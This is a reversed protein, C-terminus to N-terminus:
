RSAANERLRESAALTAFVYFLAANAPIQLNFDVFSHVLIGVCGLLCALAMGGSAGLTEGSLKAVSRRFLLFLFWLAVGGGLLGM